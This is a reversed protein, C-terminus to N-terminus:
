IFRGTQDVNSWAPKGNVDPGSSYDVWYDWGKADSLVRECVRNLAPESVQSSVFHRDTGKVVYYGPRLCSSELEKNRKRQAQDVWSM